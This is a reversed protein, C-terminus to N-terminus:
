VGSNAKKGCTKVLVAISLLLVAYLLLYIRGFQLSFMGLAMLLGHLFRLPLYRGAPIGTGELFSLVQCAVSLGGFGVLFAALIEGQPGSPLALIGGTLEVAGKLLASDPLFPTFVSFFIVYACIFLMSRGGSRVAASFRGSFSLGSTDGTDTAAKSPRRLAGLVVGLFSSILWQLLLLALVSEGGGPLKGRVLGFLFGPSCNNAIILLREAEEGSCRGLRRCEAAAGAGLPYGGVLGALFAPLATKRINFLGEFAKGLSERVIPPLEMRLLLNTMVLFPFLAPIVTRLCNELGARAAASADASRISLLAFAGAAPLFLLATKAGNRRM